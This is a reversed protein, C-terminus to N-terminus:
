PEVKEYGKPHVESSPTAHVVGQSAYLTDVTVMFDKSQLDTLKDLVRRADCDNDGLWHGKIWSSTGPHDIRFTLEVATPEGILTADVLLAPYTGDEFSAGLV